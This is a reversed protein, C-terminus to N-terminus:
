RRDRVAFIEPLRPGKSIIFGVNRSTSDFWWSKKMIPLWPERPAIQYQFEAAFYGSEKLPALSVVSQLPAIDLSEEGLNARIVHESRNLWLTEGAKPSGNAGIAELRVPLVQNQTDSTIVLYFDTDGAAIKVSPAGAPMQEPSRVEGPCLSLTIEGAPLGIVESFQKNRLTVKRSTMGNFLFAEGPVEMSKGLFIIRCTRADQALCPFGSIVLLIILFTKM